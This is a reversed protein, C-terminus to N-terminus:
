GKMNMLTRFMELDNETLKINCQMVTGDPNTVKMDFVSGVEPTNDKLANFFPLVRPHEEKFTNFKQQLEMIAMPNINPM